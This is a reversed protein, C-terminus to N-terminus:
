PLLMQDSGSDREQISREAIFYKHSDGTSVSCIKTWVAFGACRYCFVYLEVFATTALALNM